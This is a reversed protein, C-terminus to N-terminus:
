ARYFTRLWALASTEDTFLRVPTAPKNFGLFINGIARSLHSGIQLAVAHLVETHAPLTFFSRAERSMSRLRTIDMLLGRKRGGALKRILEMAETADSLEFVADSVERGHIIGEDDLWYRAGRRIQEDSM